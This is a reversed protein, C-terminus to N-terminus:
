GLRTVGAGLPIVRRAGPEGMYSGAEAAWDPPGAICPRGCASVATRSFKWVDEVAPARDAWCVALWAVVCTRVLAPTPWAKAQSVIGPSHAPHGGVVSQRPDVCKRAAVLLELEELVGYDLRRTPPLCQGFRDEEGSADIWAACATGELHDYGVLHVGLEVGLQCVRVDLADRTRCAREGRSHGPGLALAARGPRELGVLASDETKGTGGSVRGLHAHEDALGTWAPLDELISLALQARVALEVGGEDLLPYAHAARDVHPPAPGFHEFALETRHVRPSWTCCAEGAADAVAPHLHASLGAM